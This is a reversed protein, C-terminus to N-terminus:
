AIFKTVNNVTKYALGMWLQASIKINKYFLRPQLIPGFLKIPDTRSSKNSM